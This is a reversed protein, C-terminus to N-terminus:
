QEAAPPNVCRYCFRRLTDFYENGGVEETDNHGAGEVVYFEKPATAADFVAKAHAIPALNDESGHVMLLPLKAGRILRLSDFRNRLLFWVPLLSFKRRALDPVSAFTGEMILGAARRRRAVHLAVAAGLSRGFCIIRLYRYAAEADLYFGYESPSGDSRGYGRYDLLLVALGREAFARLGEARHTINGANGHFWLLVPRQAPDGEGPHWWGYLELGDATRLTCEEIGLGPPAWGAVPERSPHFVFSNEFFLVAAFLLVAVVCLAVFGRIAVHWWLYPAQAAEGRGAAHQVQPRGGAAANGPDANVAEACTAVALVLLM